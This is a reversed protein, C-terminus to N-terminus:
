KKPAKQISDIFENFDSDSSKETDKEEENFTQQAIDDGLKVLREKM